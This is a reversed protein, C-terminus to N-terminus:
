HVKKASHESASLTDNIVKKLEDMEVRGKRLYRVGNMQLELVEKQSLDRGSIIIIPINKTAGDSKLEQIYQMGNKRRLQLDMLVAEPKKEKSLSVIDDKDLAFQLGEYGMDDVIFKLLNSFDASDEVILVAKKSAPKPEKPM